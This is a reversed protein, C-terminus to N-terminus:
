PLVPAPDPGEVAAVIYEDDDSGALLCLPCLAGTLRM